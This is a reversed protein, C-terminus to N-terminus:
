LRPSRSRPQEPVSGTQKDLDSRLAESVQERWWQMNLRDKSQRDQVRRLVAGEGHARIVEHALLPPLSQLRWLFVEGKRSAGGGALTLGHELLLRLCACQQELQEPEVRHLLNAWVPNDYYDRGNAKAGADLAKRIGELDLSWVADCLDMEPDSSRANM